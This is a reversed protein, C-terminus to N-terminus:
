IKIFLIPAFLCNALCRCAHSRLASCATSPCLMTGPSITLFARSSHFVRPPAPQQWRGKSSRANPPFWESCEYQLLWHYSKCLAEEVQWWISVYLLWVLPFPLQPYEAEVSVPRYIFVSHHLDPICIVLRLRTSSLISGVSQRRCAHLYERPKDSISFLKPFIFLDKGCCRLQGTELSWKFLLRPAAPPRAAPLPCPNLTAM